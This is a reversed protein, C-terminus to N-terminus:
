ALFHHAFDHFRDRTAMGDNDGLHWDQRLGITDSLATGLDYLQGVVSLSESMQGLTGISSALGFAQSPDSLQGPQILSEVAWGSNWSTQGLYDGITASIMDLNPQSAAQLDLVGYTMDAGALAAAAMSSTGLSGNIVDQPRLDGVVSDTGGGTNFVVRHASTLGTIDVSDNGAGGDVTITNYALGTNTFDGIVHIHDGSNGPLVSTNNSNYGTGNLNIANQTGATNVKIEEISNLEAIINGVGSGNRTVVIGTAAGITAGPNAALYADRSYIYFDETSGGDGNLVFTDTGAGGFIMDRGGSNVITAAAFNVNNVNYTITDNGGGAVVIDNGGGGNLNNVGSHGLVINQNFNGANNFNYTGDAFVVTEVNVLTDVGQNGVLDTLVPFDNTGALLGSTLDWSYNFRSGAATVIDNGSGGDIWDNGTSGSLLDAGGKGYLVTDSGAVGTLVNPVISDSGTKITVTKTEVGGTTTTASLNVTYTSNDALAASRNLTSGSFSYLGTETGGPGTASTVALTNTGPNSSVMGVALNGLGGPFVAGNQRAASYVINLDDNVITGTATGTAITANVPASLAVTFAENSEIATDGNVTVTFTASTQGAAITLDGAGAAYDSANSATGNATAWHVTTDTGSVASQNVTFTITKTGADGETVQGGVISLTPAVDNDTITGIGTGDTIVVGNNASTLNLNFTETAEFTTDGVVPVSVTATLQGAPITVSGTTSTFDGAGATGNSTSYSITIPDLAAYSLSITFSANATGSDGETISADSVSVTPPPVVQNFTFTGDAFKFNAVDIVADSGDRGTVTDTVRVGKHANGAHDTFTIVEVTYDAKNGTFVVTDNGGAASAVGAASTNGLVNNKFQDSRLMETFHKAYDTGGTQANIADILGTGDIAESYLVRHSAGQYLADQNQDADSVGANENNHTYGSNYKGIVDDLRMSGGIIVDDGGGGQLTDNGSGGIVWDDDVVDNGAADVHDSGGILTDDGASGIVGEIQFSPVQVPIGNIAVAPNGQNSLDFFVGNPRVTNDSFDIIDFGIVKGNADLAESVGDGGLVEDSGITLAGTADGPRIIDDGDGGFMQDQDAGGILVDDGNDGYLIDGGSNGEVLDNGDSGHTFPDTDGDGVIHDDGTGGSLKDIGVGGSIFDNGSGGILQDAGNIDSGSSEGWIFDDGSGGDILDPNDGGYIRDSGGGGYLRDIGYGGYIIDNGDEGYVTDDGGQAYVLDGYQTGVIVESSEAGSNPTGDLNVGGNLDAAGTDAGHDELRTDRVYAIGGIKIIAGDLASSRGSNTYIGVGAGNNQFNNGLKSVTNHYTLAGIGAVAGLRNADVGTTVADGNQDIVNGYKHNNSTTQTETNGGAAVDFVERQAGFDYYKDAYGFVNGNLHTLGTNREVIDKLQGNGVEEAFQQGALRYLYYFRDGDMLSEIQTLFVLDFTEGLLGGPQHIEALGGLWTDIHNFGDSGAITGGADNDLFQIALEVTFGMAEPDGDFISGEALGMIAQAKEMALPDGAFSYAAIFNVLSGPHQMNNGYDTWSSYRALGLAERFDNLTPIGLDRGRAINIAALDLPLGLLGQNLAPTVFEDVENM